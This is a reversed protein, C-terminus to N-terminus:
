LGTECDERMSYDLKKTIQGTAKKANTPLARYFDYHIGLTVNRVTQNKETVAKKLDEM